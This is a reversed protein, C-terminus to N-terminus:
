ASDQGTGTSRVGNDKATTEVVLLRGANTQGRWAELVGPRAHFSDGKRLTTEVGDLIVTVADGLVHGFVSSTPLRTSGDDAVQVIRARMRPEPLTRTLEIDTESADPAPTLDSVAESKRSAEVLENISAGLVDAVAVVTALSPNTRGAELDRVARESLGAERALQGVTRGSRERLARIQRGIKRIDPFGPSKAM